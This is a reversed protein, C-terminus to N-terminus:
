VLAAEKRPLKIGALLKEYMSVIDHDRTYGEGLLRALHDLLYVVQAVQMRAADDEPCAVVSKRLFGAADEVSWKTIEMGIQLDFHLADIFPLGDVEGYEWDFASVKGSQARLNWPAFDGHVITSTVETQELLPWAQDLIELLDPRPPHLSVLRSKLGAAMSTESAPKRSGCELSRLFARHEATLAAAAPSGRLPTQVTIYRGDVDGAFLLRPTQDRLGQREQLAMLMNAEHEVIRRSVDSVAIKVFALVEGSGDIVSASPKRNIAPEPAGSSLALRFSRGPFLEALKQELPPVQRSAVLIQDRYWWPVRLRALLTAVAKKAQASPRSPTYLSFSASAVPGSDLSIFWRAKELSPLAAFRRVYRYGAAELRASTVHSCNIAVIGDWNPLEFNVESWPKGWVALRRTTGDARDQLLQRFWGPGSACYCGAGSPLLTLWTLAPPLTM